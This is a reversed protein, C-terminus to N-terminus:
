SASRAPVTEIRAKNDGCHRLDPQPSLISECRARVCSGNLFPALLSHRAAGPASETYNQLKQGKSTGKPYHGPACKLRKGGSAAEFAIATTRVAFDMSAHFMMPLESARPALPDQSRSASSAVPRLRPRQEKSPQGLSAATPPWRQSFLWPGKMAGIQELQLQCPLTSLIRPAPARTRAFRASVRASIDSPMSHSDCLSARPLLRAARTVHITTVPHKSESAFTGGKEAGEERVVGARHSRRIM